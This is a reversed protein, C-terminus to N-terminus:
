KEEGKEFSGKALRREGVETRSAERIGYQAMIRPTSQEVEERKLV